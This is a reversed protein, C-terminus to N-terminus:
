ARVEHIVAMYMQLHVHTETGARRAGSRQCGSRRRPAARPSPLHRHHPAPHLNPVLGALSIPLHVCVCVCVKVRLFSEQLPPPYIGPLQRRLGRRLPQPRHQRRLGQSPVRGRLIAAPGPGTTYIYIVRGRLLAAPGPGSGGVLVYRHDGPSSRRATERERGRGSSRRQAVKCSKLGQLQDAPTLVSVQVAGFFICAPDRILSKGTSVGPKRISERAGRSRSASPPPRTAPGPERRAQRSAGTVALLTSPAIRGGGDM